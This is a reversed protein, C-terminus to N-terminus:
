TVGATYAQFGSYSNTSGVTGTIGASFSASYTTFTNDNLQHARFDNYNPDEPTMKAYYLIGNLEDSYICHIWDFGNESTLSSYVAFFRSENGLGTVKTTKLDGAVTSADGNSDLVVTFIIADKSQESGNHNNTTTTGFIKNKASDFGFNDIYPATATDTFGPDTSCGADGDSDSFHLISIKSDVDIGSSGIRVFALGWKAAGSADYSGGLYLENNTASLLSSSHGYGNLQEKAFGLTANTYDFAIIRM